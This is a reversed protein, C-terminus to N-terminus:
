ATFGLENWLNMQNVKIVAGDIDFDLHEREKEWYDIFAYIEQLNACVKYFHGTKFGWRAAMQLRKEHESEEINDGLLFYLFCDLKRLATQKPDQLKLSGSAANRPNAFPEEGIEEKQKNLFYFAKRPMIVEGRIEFEDPYDGEKTQLKLPVSRITKINETVEDGKQGDGRTLARFLLGKRYELGVAVGDYKLECVYNFPKDTLKRLRGDFEALDERSYTNGLSLMPTKHLVTKFSKTIHGGVRQTPTYSLVYQPYSKELNILEELLMDFDYDSVKPNDEIYYAYNYDNLLQTLEEIRIKAQQENM